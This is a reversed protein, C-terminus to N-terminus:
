ARPVPGITRRLFVNFRAGAGVRSIVEICGGHRTVIDNVTALGIGTGAGDTKTTFLPEFIRPQIDEAIGCGTDTVSFCVFDDPTAAVAAPLVGAGVPSTEFVIRGGNPMADRANLTLNLIVQEIQTPDAVVYRAEPSLQMELRISSGVLRRLLATSQEVSANLDVRKMEAERHRSFALLQRALDAGRAVAEEIADVSSHRPDDQSTRLRMVDAHSRVVMLINGFDHAIGTALRGIMETKQSQRLRDELRRLNTLDRASFVKIVRGDHDFHEAVSVEMTLWTGDTRRLRAEVFYGQEGSIRLLAAISDRDTPHVLELVPLGVCTEPCYGLVREIAPAVTTFAGDGDLVGVIEHTETTLGIFLADRRELERAARQREMEAAARHAIMSSLMSATADDVKAAHGFACIVGLPRGDCGTIPIDLAAESDLDALRAFGTEVLQECHSEIVARMVASSGANSPFTAVPLLQGDGGQPLEAVAVIEYGLCEGIYDVLLQFFEPGSAPSLESAFRVLARDRAVAADDTSPFRAVGLPLPSRPSPM